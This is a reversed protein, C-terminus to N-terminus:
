NEDFLFYVEIIELIREASDIDSKPREKKDM